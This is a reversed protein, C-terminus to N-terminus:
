LGGRLSRLCNEKCGNTEAGWALVFVDVAHLFAARGASRVARRAFQSFLHGAIWARRWLFGNSRVRARQARNLSVFLFPAVRRRLLRLVIILTAKRIPKSFHGAVPLLHQFFFGSGFIHLFRELFTNREEFCM